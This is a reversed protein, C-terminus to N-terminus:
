VRLAMKRKGKRVLIMVETLMAKRFVSNRSAVTITSSGRMPRISFSTTKRKGSLPAWASSWSM